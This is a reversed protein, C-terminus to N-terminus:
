NKVRKVEFNVFDCDYLNEPQSNLEVYFTVPESENPRYMLLTGAYKSKTSLKAILYGVLTGVIFLVAYTIM